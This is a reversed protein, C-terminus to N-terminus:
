LIVNEDNIQQWKLGSQGYLLLSHTGASNMVIKNTNQM